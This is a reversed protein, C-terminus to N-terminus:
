RGGAGAAPTVTYSIPAATFSFSVTCNASITGTTWTNGNWNGPACTGGVATDRTYGANATVVFATTAGASVTQATAPNVTGGTGAAPTVTYSTSAAATWAEVEALRSENPALTVNVRIRDTAFAPFILTRKVLNNGTVSALVVWAGGDWGQVTFDTLGLTTTLTDTPEVPATYNTQATYVVVRNITKSGNFNVQAWDPFAGYTADKWIGGYGASAFNIGARENDILVGPARGPLTSSASAVGGNAALAVNISGTPVPDINQTLALSVSAFNGADGVYSAVIGHAGVTLGTAPCTATRANGSGTLPLATCGTIPNANDTFGVSGTPNAGTVTATLTVTTGALAPNASSTVVTSTAAPPPTTGSPILCLQWAIGYGGNANGGYVLNGCDTTPAYAVQGNYVGGPNVAPMAQQTWALTGVDFTWLDNLVDGNSRGGYLVVVGNAQDFYMQAQDRARPRIAATVNTWTNAIPDYLWTDDLPGQACRAPDFCRGGFLVFRHHGSDYVFHGLIQGRAPPSAPSGAAIAISYSRAAFDLKYTADDYGHGGFLIAKTGDSAFGPSLRPYPPIIGSYGWHRLALKSYSGTAFDYSWTGEGTDAYLDYYAGPSVALPASLSLTKTAASYANVYVRIGNVRVTWDRYYDETAAPLAPDVISTSTTGAGATHGVYQASPCRYGSGGNYIWLLDSISDWVVGSEDSGNPKAFSTNGPCEVDPDLTVWETTLPDLAQIDNLFKAGSGGWLVIWELSDVWTMASWARFPAAGPTGSTSIQTFTATYSTAGATWPMLGMSAVLLIAFFGRRLSVRGMKVLGLLDM